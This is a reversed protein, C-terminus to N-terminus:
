WPSCSREVDRQDDDDGQGAQEEFGALEAPGLDQVGEGVGVEDCESLSVKPKERTAATMLTKKPKM